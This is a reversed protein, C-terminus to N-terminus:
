KALRYAHAAKNKYFHCATDHKKRRWIYFGIKDKPNQWTTIEDNEIM